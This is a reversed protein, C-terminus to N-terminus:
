YLHVAGFLHCARATNAAAAAPNMFLQDSTVPPSSCIFVFFVNIQTEKSTLLFVQFGVMQQKLKFICLALKVYFVNM